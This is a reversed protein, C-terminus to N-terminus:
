SEGMVRNRGGAKARYLAADARRIISDADDGERAATVGFSATISLNQTPSIPFPM